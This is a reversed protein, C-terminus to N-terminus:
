KSLPHLVVLDIQLFSLFRFWQSFIEYNQNSYCTRSCWLCFTNNGKSTSQQIMDLNSKASYLHYIKIKSNDRKKLSLYHGSNTYFCNFLSLLHKQLITFSSPSIFISQVKQLFTLYDSSSNWTEYEQWISRGPLSDM